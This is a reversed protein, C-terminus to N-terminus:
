RYEKIFNVWQTAQAFTTKPYSSHVSGYKPFYISIGKVNSYITGAANDIVANKIKNIGDRLVIDLADLAKQYAASPKVAARKEHHLILQSKPSSKKLKKLIATYFSHLDIYESMDFETSTKRASRIMQKTASANVKKCNAVATIFQDINQKLPELASLNVASLTFDYTAQENTYFDQYGSIMLSALAQPTIESPNQSLPRIFKSYPYGEGPITEQSAVFVNVSDKIQYAVELMAMLCADCAVLDINKGIMTKIQAFATSMGQNTLCTSQSDDYLIGRQKDNRVVSTGPIQMWSTPGMVYRLAQQVNRAIGPEFDEVGSGHDWLIVAYKEAPYKSTVWSMSDVLEQQPNYGMESNVSADEVKGNPTIKYRWTKNDEPKDWQVLINVDETPVLGASMDNMNYSAFDALNNDAAIYTLVSWKAQTAKLVETQSMDAKLMLGTSVSIGFVLYRLKLLNKM